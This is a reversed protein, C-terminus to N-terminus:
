FIGGGGGMGGAPRSGLVAVDALWREVKLAVLDITYGYVRSKSVFQPVPRTIRLYYNRFFTTM